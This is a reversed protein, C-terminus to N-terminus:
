VLSAYITRLLCSESHLVACGSACLHGCLSCFVSVKARKRPPNGQMGGDPTLRLAGTSARRSLRQPRFPPPGRPRATRTAVAAADRVASPVLMSRVQPSHANTGISARKQDPITGALLLTDPTDQEFM